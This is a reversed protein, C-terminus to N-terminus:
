KKTDPDSEKESKKKSKEGKKGKGSKSSAKKTDPDGEKEKKAPADQGAAEAGVVLAAAGGVLLAGAATLFARRPNRRETVIQEDTLTRNAEVKLNKEAM